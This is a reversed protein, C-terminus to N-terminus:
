ICSWFISLSSVSFSIWLFCLPAINHQWERTMKTIIFANNQIIQQWFSVKSNFFKNKMNFDFSFFNRWACLELPFANLDRALMIIYVFRTLDWSLCSCMFHIYYNNTGFVTEKVSLFLIIIIFLCWCFWKKRTQGGPELLPTAPMMLPVIVTRVKKFKVSIIAPFFYPAIDRSAFRLM